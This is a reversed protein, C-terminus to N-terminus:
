PTERGTKNVVRQHLYLARTAVKKVANVSLTAGTIGDITSSLAYDDGEQLLALGAFQERFFDYRIEWGRSERFELVDLRVIAEDQVVVGLTIAETKGIEEMIWATRQEGDTWYRLRLGTASPSISSLVRRDEPTLWYKQVALDSNASFAAALFEETTMYVGKAWGNAVM